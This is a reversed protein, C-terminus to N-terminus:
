VSDQSRKVHWILEEVYVIYKRVCKLNPLLCLVQKKNEKLNRKGGKYVFAKEYKLHNQQLDLVQYNVM